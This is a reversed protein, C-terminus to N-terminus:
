KNSSESVQFEDLVDDFSFHGGGFLHVDTGGISFSSDATWNAAAKNYRERSVLKDNLYLSNELGDWTLRVRLVVGAGFMTNEQGAPVYYYHTTLGGTQYWFILRGSIAGVYFTYLRNSNDFVDFVWRYNYTPLALREQFTYNSKMAFSIDGSPLDFIQRVQDGKFSYFATHSNQQGGVGFSVGSGTLAPGFSATGDGRTVLRGALDRVVATPTVIAGSTISSVETPEGTLYFRIGPVVPTIEITTTTSVGALTVTVTSTQNSDVTGATALFTADIGGSPVVVQAPTLVAPNSSQISVNAPGSAASSLIVTCTVTAGSQIASPVCTLESLVPAQSQLAISASRSVSNFTATITATAAASIARTTVHFIASSSGAPVIVSVPVQLASSSGSLTITTATSSSRSVTVMCAASGNPGLVAPSCQVSSLVAGPAQLAITTSRSDPGLAGTVMASGAASVLGTTATFAASSSGAAVTVSAPVRLLTSSSSLAVTTAAAVSGSLRVTCTASANSLMTVPNCEVASLVPAAARLNISASRSVGNLAASIGASGGASIIGTSANFTASSSGAAVNVSTPVRLQTSSSALAITTTATATMSLTVTCAASGNSSLVTLSCVVSNLAPLAAPPTAITGGSVAIGAQDSAGLAETVSVTQAPAISAFTITAVVGGVIETNNLGSVVCRYQGTGNACNLTKGSASLAAGPTMMTGIAAQPYNLTWQLAAARTSNASWLLDFTGNTRGPSLTLSQGFMVGGLPVAMGAVAFVIAKMVARTPYM